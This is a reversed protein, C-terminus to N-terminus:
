NKNEELLEDVFNEIDSQFEEEHLENVIREMELYEETNLSCISDEISMSIIDSTEEIVKMEIQEEQPPISLCKGM